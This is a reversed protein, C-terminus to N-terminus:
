GGYCLSMALVGCLYNSVVHCIVERWDSPRGVMIDRTAVRLFCHHRLVCACRYMIEHYAGKGSKRGPVQLRHHANKGIICNDDVGMKRRWPHLPFRGDPLAKLSRDTAHAGEAVGDHVIALRLVALTCCYLRCRVM